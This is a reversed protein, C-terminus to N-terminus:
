AQAQAPPTFVRTGLEKDLQFLGEGSPGLLKLKDVVSSASQEEEVQEAVFWQLFNNSAHDSQKIALDVLANIRGTVVTEHAYAAEFVKLPSEWLLPPQEIAKLEVRGGRAHIFYYMKMAHVLEEQTQVRMWNAFGPLGKSAVDGPEAFGFVSSQAGLQEVFPTLDRPPESRPGPTM